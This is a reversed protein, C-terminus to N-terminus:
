IRTHQASILDLLARVQDAKSGPLWTLQPWGRLWTLQRKALQRTAIIAKERMLMEDYEGNLYALVQRYGVARMAPLTPHLDFERQLYKVEELLGARLMAKFRYAIKEHLAGRDLCPIAVNICEFDQNISPIHAWYDTQTKGSIEYIALAREIRQADNPHIRAAAQPDVGKLKEHLAPWGKTKALALIAQRVKDDSSPMQSLGQQLARFYLMTGGVLLPYKNRSLIDRIAQTADNVFEAASYPETVNRINILHHPIQALEDPTPKATGIDMGRYVLASDVSIIEVDLCSAIALALASKGSATPGM